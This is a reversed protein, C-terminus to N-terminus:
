VLGGHKHSLWKVSQAISGLGLVNGYKGYSFLSVTKCSQFLVKYTENSPEGQATEKTKLDRPMTEAMDHKWELSGVERMFKTTRRTKESVAETLVNLFIEDTVNLM